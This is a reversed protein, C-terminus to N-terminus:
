LRGLCMSGVSKLARFCMPRRSVVIIGASKFFREFPAKCFTDDCVAFKKWSVGRTSFVIKSNFCGGRPVHSCLSNERAAPPNLCVHLVSRWASFCLASKEILFMRRRSPLLNKWECGSVRTTSRSVVLFEKRWGRYLHLTLSFKGRGGRRLLLSPFFLNKNIRWAHAGGMM